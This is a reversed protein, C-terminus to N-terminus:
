VALPNAVELQDNAILWRVSELIAQEPEYRPAYGLLTRAKEITFVHSRHM